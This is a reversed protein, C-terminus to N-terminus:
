GANNEEEAGECLTAEYIALWTVCVLATTAVHFPFGTVSVVVIAAVASAPVAADRQFRRALDFLYGIILLGAIPGMEFVAQAPDNHLATWRGLETPIHGFVAKYHGLGYGFLPRADFAEIARLLADYRDSFGRPTGDFFLIFVCLAAITLAALDKGGDRAWLWVLFAAGAAIAGATAGTVCLAFMLLPAGTWWRARFFGPLCVALLWAAENPNCMLGVPSLAGDALWPKLPNAGVWQLGVFLANVIGVVCLADTMSRPRANRAVIYWVSGLAVAHLASSSLDSWLPAVSSLCALVVFLAWWPSYRWLYAALGTYVAYQMVVAFSMRVDPAPYRVFAAALLLAPAAYAIASKSRM